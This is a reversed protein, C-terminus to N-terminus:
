TELEKIDDFSKVKKYNNKKISYIFKNFGVVKIKHNNPLTIHVWVTLIIQYKKNKFIKKEDDNIAFTFTRKYLKNLVKEKFLILYEIENEKEIYYVKVPDCMYEDYQIKCLLYEAPYEKAFFSQEDFIVEGNELATLGMCAILFLLIFLKKMKNVGM